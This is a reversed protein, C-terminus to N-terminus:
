LIDEPDGTSIPFLFFIRYRGTQIGPVTSLDNTHEGRGNVLTSKNVESKLSREQTLRMDGEVQYKNHTRNGHLIRPTPGEYFGRDYPPYDGFIFAPQSSLLNNNEVMITNTELVDKGEVPIVLWEHLDPWTTARFLVDEVQTYGGLRPLTRQWQRTAMLDTTSIRNGIPMLDKREKGNVLIHLYQAANADQFDIILYGKRNRIKAFTEKKVIIEQEIRQGARIPARFEHWTRSRLMPALVIFYLLFPLITYLKRMWSYRAVLKEGKDAENLKNCSLFVIGTAVVIHMWRWVRSDSVFPVLWLELGIIYPRLGLWFLFLSSIAIVPIRASRKRWVHALEFVGVGSLLLLIAVVPLQYRIEEVYYIVVFITNWVLFSALLILIFNKFARRLGWASFFLIITHVFQLTQQSLPFSTSYSNAATKWFRGIRELELFVLSVLNQKVVIRVFVDRWTLGKIADLGWGDTSLRHEVVLSSEIAGPVYVSQSFRNLWLRWVITPILYGLVIAITQRKTRKPTLLVWLSIFFIGYYSFVHRTFGTLFLLLGAFAFLVPKKSHVVLLSAIIIFLPVIVPTISEPMWSYVFAYLPTYVSAAGSVLLAVWLPFLKWTFVFLFAVFGAHLVPAIQQPILGLRDIFVLYLLYLPTGHINLATTGHKILWEPQTVGKGKLFDTVLVVVSNAGRQSLLYEQADSPENYDRTTIFGIRVQYSVLFLVISIAVIFVKKM